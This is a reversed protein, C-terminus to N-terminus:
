LAAHSIRQTQYVHKDTYAAEAFAKDVDGKEIVNYQNVNMERPRESGDADFQKGVKEHIPVTGAMAEQPTFYAPLEKYEVKVLDCAKQAVAESVAAIAVVEDGVYRVKDTCLPMKDATAEDIEVCGLTGSYDSGLSIAKVGPLQEAESTDISLIKAHPYPSRVFRCYLTGPFKLDGAFKARGTVKEEADIKPYNTGIISFNEEDSM